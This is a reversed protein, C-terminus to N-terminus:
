ELIMPEGVSAPRVDICEGYGDGTSGFCLQLLHEDNAPQKYILLFDTILDGDFDAPVVTALYLTSNLRLLQSSSSITSDDGSVLAELVM